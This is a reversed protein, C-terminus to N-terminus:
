PCLNDEKNDATEAITHMSGAFGEDNVSLAAAKKGFRAAIEQQTLPLSHVPINRCLQTLEGCLRPSADSSFLLLRARGTRVSQKVADHGFSVKGAKVAFGLLTFYKENM